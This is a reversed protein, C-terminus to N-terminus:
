GAQNTPLITRMHLLHRPPAWSALQHSLATLAPTLQAIRDMYASCKLSSATSHTWKSRTASPTSIWLLSNSSSWRPQSATVRTSVMTMRHKADVSHWLQESNFSNIYWWLWIAGVRLSVMAMSSYFWSHTSSTCPTSSLPGSSSVPASYDTTAILPSGNHRHLSSDWCSVLASYAWTRRPSKLKGWRRILKSSPYLQCTKLIKSCILTTRRFLSLPQPHRLSSQSKMCPLM